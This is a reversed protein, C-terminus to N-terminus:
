EVAENEVISWDDLPELQDNPSESAGAHRRGRSNFLTGLSRFNPIFRWYHRQREAPRSNSWHHSIHLPTTPVVSRPASLMETRRRPTHPILYPYMHSLLINAPRSRQCNQEQPISHCRQWPGHCFRCLEECKQSPAPRNSLDQREALCVNCYRCTRPPLTRMSEDETVSEQLIEDNGSNVNVFKEVIPSDSLKRPNIISRVIDQLLDSRPGIVYLNTLAPLTGSTFEGVCPRIARLIDATLEGSVHFRVAGSFWRILESWNESNTGDWDSSKQTTEIRLDRVSLLSQSFNNCIHAMSSLKQNLKGRSIGLELRSPANSGSLSMSIACGSTLIDARRYSRQKEIRDIFLVFPSVDINPRYVLMIEIDALRPADIRTVLSNLSDDRIGRIKIHTLAPLAVREESYPPIDVLTYHFLIHFHLSLSQLLTMGSLASAFTQSPLKRTIVIDHLRLNVLNPCSSHLQPLTCLSIGTLSLSRLHTGWRLYAPFPMYLERCLLVLDELQLFSQEVMGMKQLLSRSQTVILSISSIRDSHKLAAVVNDEDEPTLADVVQCGGYQVVIPLAPWCDLTKLVPTGPKCYLRLDLGRPSAFVIRRWRQCVHALRHWHPPSLHRYSGFIILLVDDPLVEISTNRNPLPFDLTSRRLLTEGPLSPALVEPDHINM